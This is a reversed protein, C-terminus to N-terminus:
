YIFITKKTPVPRLPEVTNESIRRAWGSTSLRLSSHAITPRSMISMVGTDPARNQFRSAVGFGPNVAM